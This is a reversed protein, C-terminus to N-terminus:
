HITKKECGEGRLSQQEEDDFDQMEDIEALFLAAPHPIRCLVDEDFTPDKPHISIAGLTSLWQEAEEIVMGEPIEWVLATDELALPRLQQWGCDNIFGYRAYVAAIDSSEAIGGQTEFVATAEKEASNLAASLTERAHEASSVSNFRAEIMLPTKITM